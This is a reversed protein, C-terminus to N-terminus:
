EQKSRRFHEASEKSVAKIHELRGEHYDLTLLVTEQHDGWGKDQAMNDIWIAMIAAPSNFTLKENKDEKAM